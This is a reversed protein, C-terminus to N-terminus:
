VASLIYGEEEEEEKSRGKGGFGSRGRKGRAQMDQLVVSIHPLQPLPKEGQAAVAAPASSSPSVPSKEAHLEIGSRSGDRGDRRSSSTLRSRWSTTLRSFSVLLPKLPPLSATTIATLLELLSWVVLEVNDYSPDFTRQYQIISKLRVLSTVTSFSGLAFVFALTVKVRTKMKLKRIETIPLFMLVFDEVISFIAGALILASTDICRAGGGDLLHRDWAARVPSCQFAVALVFGLGHLVIFAAVVKATTQFWATPFVRNYLLLISLKVLVQVAIYVIQSAYFLILLAEQRDLSIDWFHLGLGYEASVFEVAALAVLTILAALCTWDDMGFDYTKIYRTVLRLLVVPVSVAVTAIASAKVLGVRSERPYDKCQRKLIVSAELQQQFPCSTQTAISLRSMIETSTCVCDALLKADTLSCKADTIVKIAPGASCSPIASILDAVSLLQGVAGPTFAWLVASAALPFRLLYM